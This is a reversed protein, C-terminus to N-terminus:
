ARRIPRGSRFHRFPFLVAFLSYLILSQIQRADSVSEVSTDKEERGNRSLSPINTQVSVVFLVQITVVDFKPRLARAFTPTFPLSHSRITPKTSRMKDCKMIRDVLRSPQKLHNTGFTKGGERVSQCTRFSNPFSAYKRKNKATTTTTAM